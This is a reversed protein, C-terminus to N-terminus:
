RAAEASQSMEALLALTQKAEDPDIRTLAFGVHVVVYDGVAVGEVLAVSVVKSVGDLSVRAMQEPLLEVVEAPIALCM